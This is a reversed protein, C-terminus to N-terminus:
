TAKTIEYTMKIAPVVVLLVIAALGAWISGGLIAWTILWFVTVCYLAVSLIATVVFSIMTLSLLFVKIIDILNVKM